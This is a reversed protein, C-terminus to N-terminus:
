GLIARLMSLMESRSEAGLRRRIRAVHHEVTKASILLQSGIDRYQMGQLLLEAVERERDSLRAFPASAPPTTPTSSTSVPQPVPEDDGVSALKLDRAVQLMAGSVRGDTAHLAAQSALRTADWTLGYQGLARAAATVDDVDVHNALVRLWTRGADALAKAFASSSAAATLAQGHPAVAKPDNALIGAHVGAWHLPVAWLVPDGLAALLGFAENLPHRLRDVQQLRGAAVWLEGLPLLSLLDTSQESLVEVATFWHKQMAGTDGSRRAIATQLAAAWLADRRHLDATLVAAADASAAALQGDQMRVWGQLLRHRHASFGHYGDENGGTRVARAIVSRARVPDGGHLAVLTVLAAASDPAVGPPRQETIAQSLRAVAVSYPADLTLVLGEALSRAARATSTPPGVADLDLAARASAADGTAVSVVAHAAALHATNGAQQPGLWRFLDAAQATGGDHMAISASIRVATAREAADDSGLLEDALRGATACDGTMALADALRATLATAGAQAAARYLRAPQGPEGRDDAARAALVDALRGDRMGHEALRLALDTSLTSMELQSQLLATEVEHHRATGVVQALGRHLGRVFATNLAPSLLGTARARDVLGAAETGSVHLAAAVDDPGLEPTLTCLLLTDLVPEDLRVLREVLTVRAAQVAASAPADGDAALAARAAPYLLFPLGATSAMLARGLEPPPTAGMIEATTRVLERGPLPGLEVVPAERAMATALETLAARHALPLASVVVTTGPEDVVATIRQLEADDLLHADDVVIAAEGATPPVRSLVTVGASRLATRIATLETTKGTGIGGTVFRKVPDTM